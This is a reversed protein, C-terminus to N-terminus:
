FALEDLHTSVADFVRSQASLSARWDNKVTLSHDADIVNVVRARTGAVADPLWMEDANGGIALHSSSANRLAATVDDSTLVPTLWIGAVGERQAWPLAFCGFSKAVILRRSTGPADEFAATVAEEVFSVPGAAADVEWEVGQVHWGREALLKGSWYLLPAHITYGTGPLLVAVPSNANAGRALTRSAM